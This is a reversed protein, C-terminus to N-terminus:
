PVKFSESKKKKQPPPPPLVGQGGRSGHMISPEHFSALCIYPNLEHVCVFIPESSRNITYPSLEANM